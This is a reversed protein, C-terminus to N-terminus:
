RSRGFGKGSGLALVLHDFAGIRAFANEVSEADAADMVLAALDGKLAEKAVNLRPESCTGFEPLPPRLMVHKATKRALLTNLVLSTPAHHEFVGTESDGIMRIHLKDNIRRKFLRLRNPFEFSQKVVYSRALVTLGGDLFFLPEM